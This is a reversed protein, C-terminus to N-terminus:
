GASGIGLADAAPRGLLYGQGLECGLALLHKRQLETEVGEAVVAVGLARALEIVTAVIAVSHDLTGLSAVFSRDIKLEHIPLRHLLSLSSFGTGFDDLSFRVGLRALADLNATAAESQDLVATETVELVLREAAFTSSRLVETVEHAFGPWALQRASVNVSLSLAQDPWRAADACARRLVWSGLAGIAGMSEALPIFVDSPVLGILPHVWRLLAEYGVPDGTNLSVIPQYALSLEADYDLDRLGLALRARKLTENALEPGFVQPEGDASIRYLNLSLGARQLLGALGDAGGTATGVIVEVPIQHTLYAVPLATARLVRRALAKLRRPPGGYPGVIVFRGSGLRAIRDPEVLSALRAATERVVADGADYGLDQNMQELGIIELIVAATEQLFPDGAPDGAPGVTAELGIRTSLGTLWDRHGAEDSRGRVLTHRATEVVECVIAGLDPDHMENRLLVEVRTSVGGMPRVRVSVLSSGGPSGLCSVLAKLASPRDDPHVAALVPRGVTRWLEWGAGRATPSLVRSVVLDGDVVLTAQATGTELKRLSRLATRALRVEDEAGLPMAAIAISLSEGRGPRGGVVAFTLSRHTGDLGDSTLELLEPLASLGPHLVRDSTLTNWWSLAKRGLLAFARAGETGRLQAPHARLAAAAGEDCDLIVGSSSIRLRGELHPDGNWPAPGLVSM